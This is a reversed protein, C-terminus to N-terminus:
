FVLEYSCALCVLCVCFMLYNNRRLEPIICCFTLTKLFHLGKNFKLNGQGAALATRSREVVAGVFDPICKIDM